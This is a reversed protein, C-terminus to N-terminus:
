FQQLFRVDNELFVGPDSVGFKIMAVQEIQLSFAFGSVRQPDYSVSEFVSPHVMGAEILEIWEENGAGEEAQPPRIDVVCSPQCFPVYAPRLRTSTGPGFMERLFVQLIGKLDAFSIAEDIMLGCIQHFMASRERAMDRRFVRGACILALPPTRELMARIQVPWIHTRLLSEHGVRFAGHADRAPHNRPINLAEFNHYESEIEPGRAVGFGMSRFVSLIEETVQTLPHRRGLEWHAGPLTVDLRESSILKEHELSKIDQEKEQLAQLIAAKVSHATQTALPRASEPLASIKRLIGPLQGNKGVYRRRANELAKASRVMRMSRLARNKTSNLDKLIRDVAM